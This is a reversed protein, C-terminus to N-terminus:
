PENARQYEHIFRDLLTDLTNLIYDPANAHTGTVTANWVIGIKNYRRGDALTFSVPRKFELDITFASSVVNVKLYLFHDGEHQAPRLGGTRLRLETRNILRGDSLRIRAADEPLHEIVLPVNRYDAVELGTGWRGEQAELPIGFPM